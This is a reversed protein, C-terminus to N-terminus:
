PTQSREIELGTALIWGQNEEIQVRLWPGQCANAAVPTDKKLLTLIQAQPNPIKRLNVNTKTRLKLPTNFEFLSNNESSAKKRNPDKILDILHRSQAVYNMAPGYQNKTFLVSATEMLHHAQLQLIKDAPSIKAQKLHELAVETEAIASATGPKTALRHLKVQTRTAEKNVERLAQAQNQQRIEQNKILEDKEAILKELRVIEERLNEEQSSAVPITDISPSPAPKPTECGTLNLALLVLILHSLSLSSIALPYLSQMKSSLKMMKNEQLRIHKLMYNERRCRENYALTYELIM